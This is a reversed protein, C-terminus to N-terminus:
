RDLYRRCGAAPRPDPASNRRYVPSNGDCPERDRAAGAPSVSPVPGRLGRGPLAAHGPVDRDVRKRRVVYAAVHCRSGGPGANGGTTQVIGATECPRIVDAHSIRMRLLIGGPTRFGTPATASRRAAASRRSSTIKAPSATTSETRISPIATPTTSTGAQPIFTDCGPHDGGVNIASAHCQLLGRTYFCNEVDCRTVPPMGQIAREGTRPHRKARYSRLAGVRYAKRCNRTARLRSMPSSSDNHQSM